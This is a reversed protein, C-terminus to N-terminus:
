RYGGGHQLGDVTPLPEVMQTEGTQSPSLYSARGPSRKKAPSEGPRHNSYPNPPM